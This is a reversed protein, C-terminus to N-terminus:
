IYVYMYMGDPHFGRRRKSRKQFCRTKAMAFSSVKMEFIRSNQRAFDLPKLIMCQLDCPNKRQFSARNKKEREAACANTWCAVLKRWFMKKPTWGVGNGFGSAECWNLISMATWGPRLAVPFRQNLCNRLMRIHQLNERVDVDGGWGVWGLFNRLMRIHQLNERVDVDGGWGVWGLFNRLMRIHQLNERVDVDGGWGVWGLFNRLMRIHQLNERVDVDGGWGVGGLFNRKVFVRFVSARNEGRQCICIYIYTYPPWFVMRVIQHKWTKHIQLQAM